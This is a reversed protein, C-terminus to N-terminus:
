PQDQSATISIHSALLSPLDPLTLNPRNPATPRTYSCCKQPM